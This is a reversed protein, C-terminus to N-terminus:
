SILGLRWYTKERAVIRLFLTTKANGKWSCHCDEFDGAFCAEQRLWFFSDWDWYGLQPISTLCKEFTKAKVQQEIAFNSIRVLLLFSGGELVDKDIKRCVM